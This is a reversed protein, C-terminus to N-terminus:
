YIDAIRIQEENDFYGNPNDDNFKQIFVDNDGNQYIDKAIKLAKSKAGKGTIEIPEGETPIVYYGRM